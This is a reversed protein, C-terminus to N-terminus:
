TSTANGGDIVAVSEDIIESMTMGDPSIYNPTSIQFSIYEGKTKNFIYTCGTSKDIYIIDEQAESIPPFSDLNKYFSINNCKEELGLVRKYMRDFLEPLTVDEDTSNDDHTMMDNLIATIISNVKKDLHQGSSRKERFAPTSM